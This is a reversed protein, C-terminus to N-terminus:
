AADSGNQPQTLLLRGSRGIADRIDSETAIVLAAVDRTRLADLIEKHRDVTYYDRVNEIVQRQFPGVQLWVSEIVPMSVQHPNAQYLTRHFRHNLITLQDLDYRKLAEDMGADVDGMEEILINSVYPLSREAAHTELTIRLALLEEFRGLTMRPVTMRRNQLVEIAHESSLRRVAERIPTPSLGMAEALGRMTLNTGPPIAGVMIAYRLREYVYEQTTLDARMPIEPVDLQDHKVM